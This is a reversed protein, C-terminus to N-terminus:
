LLAVCNDLYTTSKEGKRKRKEKDILIYTDDADRKMTKRKPRGKTKVADRM